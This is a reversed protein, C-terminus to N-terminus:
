RGPPQGVASRGSRELRRLQAPDHLFGLSVPGHSVPLFARRWSLFIEPLSDTGPIKRVFTSSSERRSIYGTLSRGAQLLIFCTITLIHSRAATSSPRSFIRQRISVRWFRRRCRTPSSYATAPYQKLAQGIFEESQGDHYFWATDYYNIGHRYFIM